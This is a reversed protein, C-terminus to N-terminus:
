FFNLLTSANRDHPYKTRAFTFTYIHLYIYVIPIFFGFRILINYLVWVTIYHDDKTRRRCAAGSSVLRYSWVHDPGTSEARERM